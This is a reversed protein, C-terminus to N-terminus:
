LGGREEKGIGGGRERMRRNKEGDGGEPQADPSRRGEPLGSCPPRRWWHYVPCPPSCRARCPSRRRQYTLVVSDKPTVGARM